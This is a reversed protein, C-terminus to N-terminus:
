ILDSHEEYLEVIFEFDNPDLKSPKLHRLIYDKALRVHYSSVFTALSLDFTLIDLHNRVLGIDISIKSLLFHFVCKLTTNKEM